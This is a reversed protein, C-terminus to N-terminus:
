DDYLSDDLEQDVARVAAIFQRIKVADKLGPASEVGSSLDVAAPRLSRIAAGVNSAHLGGALIVPLPLDDKALQWDFTKGTGGHVGEQWSDLLIARACRYDRCTQVLDLGPRVRVSKIWPRAFQQCFDASEQGSFQITNIPVAALIREINAAPEDVFLAVINVLPPVVAAIQRAQEVTVRRPSDAFFVLGIADAGGAVVARADEQRTIGCIKIRTSAM